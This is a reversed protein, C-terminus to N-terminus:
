VLAPLLVRMFARVSGAHQDLVLKEGREIRAGALPPELAASLRQQRVRDAENAVQRVGQHGRELGSELFGTLGVQQEVDHVGRAGLGFALHLGDDFDEGLEPEFVMGRQQDQVLGVAHGITREEIDQPGMVAIGHGDAGGPSLAEVAEFLGDALGQEIPGEVGFHLRAHGVAANQGVQGLVGLDLVADIVVVM